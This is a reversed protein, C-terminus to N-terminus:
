LSKKPKLKIYGTSKKKLYSRNTTTNDTIPKNTSIKWKPNRKSINSKKIHDAKYYKKKKSRTHKIALINENKEFEKSLRAEEKEIEATLEKLSTNELHNNSVSPFLTLYTEQIENITMENVNYM